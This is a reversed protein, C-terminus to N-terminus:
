PSCSHGPLVPTQHIGPTSPPPLSLLPFLLLFPLPLLVSSFSFPSSCGPQALASRPVSGASSGQRSLGVSDRSCGMMTLLSQRLIAPPLPPELNRTRTGDQGRLDPRSTPGHRCKMGRAQAPKPTCHGSTPARCSIIEAKPSCSADQCQGRAKVQGGARNGASPSVGVLQLFETVRPPLRSCLSSHDGTEPGPVSTSPSLAPFQYETDSYQM